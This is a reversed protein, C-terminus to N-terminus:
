MRIAEEYTPPADGQHLTAKPLSIAERKIPSQSESVRASAHESHGTSIGRTQQYIQRSPVSHCQDYDHASNQSYGNSRHVNRRSYHVPSLPPTTSITCKHRSFCMCAYCAWFILCMTGAIVVFIVAQVSVDHDDDNTQARCTSSGVVSIFIVLLYTLGVTSPVTLQFDGPRVIDGINTTKM